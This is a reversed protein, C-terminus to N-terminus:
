VFNKFKQCIVRMELMLLQLTMQEWFCDEPKKPGGQLDDCDNMIGPKVRHFKATFYAAGECVVARRHNETYFLACTM